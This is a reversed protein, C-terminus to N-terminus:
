YSPRTFANWIQRLGNRFQKTRDSLTTKVRIDLQVNQMNNRRENASIQFPIKYRRGLTDTIHVELKRSQNLEVLTESLEINNLNQGCYHHVRQKYIGCVYLGVSQGAQITTRYPKNEPEVQWHMQGGELQGSSPDYIRASEVILDDRKLPYGLFRPDSYVSIRHYGLREGDELRSGGSGGGSTRIKPLKIRHHLFVLFISTFVGLWYEHTAVVQSANNIQDTLWDM